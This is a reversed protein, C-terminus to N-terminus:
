RGTGRAPATPARRDRAPTARVEFGLKETYFALAADQDAVTFMAVGINTITTPTPTSRTRGPLRESSESNMASGCPQEVRRRGHGTGSGTAPGAVSSRSGDSASSGAQVVGRTRPVPDPLAIQAQWPSILNTGTASCEVLLRGGADLVRLDIV